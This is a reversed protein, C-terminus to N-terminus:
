RFSALSVKHRYYDSAYSKYKTAAPEDNLDYGQLYEYFNKNGGLGM